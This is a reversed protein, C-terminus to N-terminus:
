SWGIALAISRLHCTSSSEGDWRGNASSIECDM